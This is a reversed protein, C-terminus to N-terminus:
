LKNWLSQMKSLEHLEGERRFDHFTFPNQLDLLRCVGKLHKRAVSDTLPVLGKPRPLLFLLDNDSAPIKAIMTQLAHIPCLLSEGLAPISVTAM